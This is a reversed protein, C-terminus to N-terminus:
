PAIQPLVLNNKIAFFSMEKESNEFLDMIRDKHTDTIFVQGFNENSILHMLKRVRVEDLKDYIDDLLLLPPYQKIKKIFDFEALKLAILFSKQQGQSAFKKIPYNNISFDLDDKHVGVSSYQLAMDKNFAKSLTDAFDPTHLHSNYSISASEAEEEGSILNYYTQFIPNFTDIFSQRKQYLREGYEILQLNWIELNEKDFSRSEYFYRLLANRQVLIKNYNILNALYVADAQAIVSDMFKRRSESGQHILETDTPSILVLPFLGIHDALRTYEKKNRKFQKKHNRKQSCYVEDTSDANRFTGQLMFFPANYLINQSDIPNLFSKSFSLYYIADLLNTKGKGNNGVFCNIHKCFNITAETYNKFNLLSLDQLYM